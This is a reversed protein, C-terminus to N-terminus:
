AYYRDKGRQMCGRIGEQRGGWRPAVSRNATFGRALAGSPDSGLGRCGGGGGEAPAPSSSSTSTPQLLSWVVEGRRGVGGLINAVAARRESEPRMGGM